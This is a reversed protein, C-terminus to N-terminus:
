FNYIAKPAFFRMGLGRLLLFLLLSVWLANNGMFQSFGYYLLFYAATAIFIADRMAKSATAGVYIGDWL